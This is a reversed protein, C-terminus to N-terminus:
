PTPRRPSARKPLPEGLVQSKWGPERAGRDASSSPATAPASSPTVPLHHFPINHSAVLQYLDRHNSIVAPIEIPLAGTRYRYLLDNM